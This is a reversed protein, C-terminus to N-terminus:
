FKWMVFILNNTQQVRSFTVFLALKSMSANSSSYIIIAIIEMAFMFFKYNKM